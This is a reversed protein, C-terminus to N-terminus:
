QIGRQLYFNLPPESLHLIASLAALLPLWSAILLLPNLVVVELWEEEKTGWQVCIQEPSVIPPSVSFSKMWVSHRNLHGVGWM